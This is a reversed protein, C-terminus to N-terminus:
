WAAEYPAPDVGAVADDSVFRNPFDLGSWAAFEDVTRLPGASYPELIRHPDGAHLARLRKYAIEDRRHVEEGDGDSIFKKNGGPHNRHWAVVMSPNFLDYGWTFSRITLALEEGTYLHQPDQRVEVNWQGLTFVFMGLPITVGASQSPTGAANQAITATETM